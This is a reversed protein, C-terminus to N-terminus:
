ITENTKNLRELTDNLKSKENSILEYTYSKVQEVGPQNYADIDMLEGMYAVAIQMTMILEGIHAEDIASLDLLITPKNHDYLSLMTANLETNMLENLSTLTGDISIDFNHSKEGSIFLITKNNSGEVYLQLQSHQDNVGIAKIPTLFSNNNLNSRTIHKGLSESILQMYYDAFYELKHSYPMIVLESKGANLLAYQIAGLRLAVGEGKQTKALAKKAGKLIDDINIGLLYLPLLGVASFVSFRGPLDNDIYLTNLGHGQAFYALESGETTTIVIHEDLRLNNERLKSTIVSLTARIEVTKGSKSIINFLTDKLDIASLARMIQDSDINDIIHVSIDKKTGLAQYISKFGLISGGLGVVVLHKYANLNIACDKINSTDQKVLKMWIKRKDRSLDLLNSIVRKNPRIDGNAIGGTFKSNNICGGYVLKLM